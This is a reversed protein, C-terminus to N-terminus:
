AGAFFTNIVCIIDGSNVNGDLNCDPTGEGLGGGFFENIVTIIDGSNVSGDANGDGKLLAGVPLSRHSEYDDFYATEGGITSVAGMRIQDVSGTGSDFTTNAVESLADTNVWFGGTAGSEWVFEILNWHTPDAPVSASGGGTAATADFNFNTGDYTISFLKTGAEDSYAAFLEHTGASLLKPFVYFRGIFKTEAAPSNDVVHGADTVGLGCLGSVRPTGNTPDDALAAGETSTWAASSCALTSSVFFTGSLLVALAILRTATKMIVLGEEPQQNSQPATKKKVNM